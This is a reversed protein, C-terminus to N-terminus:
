YITLITLISRSVLHFVIIDDLYVLAFKWLVGSLIVDMARQFTAPANILGFPMRKFRFTGSHCTFTTKDKSSDDLPIQWFVSNADLTSFFKAKGLSNICEDLRPMPYADKRTIANVQRYDVCFRTTGDPNPVMVLPSAWDSTSPEIVNMELMRNV